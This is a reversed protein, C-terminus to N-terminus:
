KFLEVYVAAARLLVPDDKFCGLGNNCSSCLPKRVEGSTHCHDIHIREASGCIFCPASRFAQAEEYTMGYKAKVSRHLSDRNICKRCVYGLKFKNTDRPQFNSDDFPKRAGCKKCEMYEPKGPACPRNKNRISIREKHEATYKNAYGRIRERNAERYAKAYARRKEPDQAARWKKAYEPDSHM